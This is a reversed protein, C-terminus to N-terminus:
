SDEIDGSNFLSLAVKTINTPIGVDSCYQQNNTAEGAVSRKARVKKFNKTTKM